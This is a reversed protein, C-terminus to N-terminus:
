LLLFVDCAVSFFCNNLPSRLWSCMKNSFDALTQPFFLDVLVAQILFLGRGQFGAARFCLGDWVPRELTLIFNPCTILQHGAAPGGFGRGEAWCSHAREWAAQFVTILGKEEFKSWSSKVGTLLFEDYISSATAHLFITSTPHILWFIFLFGLTCCFLLLLVGGTDHARFFLFVREDRGECVTTIYM